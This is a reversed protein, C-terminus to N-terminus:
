VVCLVCFCFFSVCLGFGVWVLCVFLVGWFFFLFWFVLLFVWFGGCRFGPGGGVGCLCCVCVILGGVGLCVGVAGCWLCGFVGLVCCGFFCCVFFCVDFFCGCFLVFFWCVGLCWGLLFWWWVFLVVLLLGVVWVWWGGVWVFVLFVFGVLV